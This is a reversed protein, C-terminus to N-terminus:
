HSEGFTTLNSMIAKALLSGHAGDCCNDEAEHGDDRGRGFICAHSRSACNRQQVPAIAHGAIGVAMGVPVSPVLASAHCAPCVEIPKARRMIIGGVPPSGAGPPGPVIASGVSHCCPAAAIGCRAARGAPSDARVAERHQSESGSQHLYVDDQQPLSAVTRTWTM